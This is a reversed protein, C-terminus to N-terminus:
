PELFLLAVGAVAVIAGLVARLSVHEKHITVAFPLLLVPSLSCCTQAIGAFSRPRLTHRASRSAGM